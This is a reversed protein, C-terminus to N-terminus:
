QTKMVKITESRDGSEVRLLYLGPILNETSLSRIQSGGPTKVSLVLSGQLDYLSMKIDNEDTAFPIEVDLFNTFPNPTANVHQDYITQEVGISTRDGNNNPRSGPAGASDM